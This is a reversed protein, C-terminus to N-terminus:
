INLILRMKKYFKKLKISILKGKKNAQFLKM